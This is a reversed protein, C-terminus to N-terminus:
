VEVHSRHPSYGRDIDDAARSDIKHQLERNKEKLNQIELEKAQITGISEQLYKQTIERVYIGMTQMDPSKLWYKAWATMAIDNRLSRVTKKAAQEIAYMSPEINNM